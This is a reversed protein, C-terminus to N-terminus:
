TFIVYWSLLKFFNDNLEVGATADFTSTIKSGIFDTSVVPDETYGLYGKFENESAKKIAKKIEEMSTQLFIVFLYFYIVFTSKRM